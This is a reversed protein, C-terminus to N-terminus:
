YNFGDILAKVFDDSQIRTVIGWKKAVKSSEKQVDEFTESGIIDEDVGWLDGNEKKPANLAFKSFRVLNDIVSKTRKYKLRLEGPLETNCLESEIADLTSELIWGYRYILGSKSEEFDYRLQNLVAPDSHNVIVPALATILRPSKATAITERIADRANQIRETPLIDENGKLHAAGLRELINQLQEEQSAKTKVFYDLPVNFSTLISILQEATFSGQGSEIESLRNQSLDLLQALREQTWHRERRLERVKKVITQRTKDNM